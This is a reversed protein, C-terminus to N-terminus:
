GRLALRRPGPPRGAPRRPARVRGGRHHGGTGRQRRRAPRPSRRRVRCRGTVVTRYAAQHHGAYRLYGDITRRASEAGPLDTDAHARAVPEAVSVGVVALHHGRKGKFSYYVLEKALGVQQAIDDM